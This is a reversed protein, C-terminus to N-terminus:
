RLFRDLAQDFFATYVVHFYCKVTGFFYMVAAAEKFSSLWRKIYNKFINNTGDIEITFFNSKNYAAVNSALITLIYKLQNVFQM